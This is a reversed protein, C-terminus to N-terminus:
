GAGEKQKAQHEDRYRAVKRRWLWEEVTALVAFFLLSVWVALASDLVRQPLLAPWMAGLWVVVGVFALLDLCFKKAAAMREYVVHAELLRHLSASDPDRDRNITFQLM